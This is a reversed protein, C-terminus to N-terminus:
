TLFITRHEEMAKLPEVICRNNERTGTTISRVWPTQCLTVLLEM